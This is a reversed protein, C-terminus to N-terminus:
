QVRRWRATLHKPPMKGYKIQGSNTVKALMSTSRKNKPYVRKWRASLINPYKIKDFRLGYDMVKAPM